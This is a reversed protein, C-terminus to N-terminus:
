AGARLKELSIGTRSWIILQQDESPHRKGQLWLTVTSRDVGVRKAFESQNQGTAKLYERIAEMGATYM